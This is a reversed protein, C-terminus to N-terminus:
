QLLKAENLFSTPDDEEEKFSKLAVERGKWLGRYVEGFFGDGLKECITVDRDLIFRLRNPEDLVVNGYIPHTEKRSSGPHTSSSASSNSDSDLKPQSGSADSSSVGSGSPTESIRQPDVEVQPIRQIPQM